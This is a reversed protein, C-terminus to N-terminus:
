NQQRKEKMFRNSSLDQWSITHQYKQQQVLKMNKAILRKRKELRTYGNRNNDRKRGATNNKYENRIAM